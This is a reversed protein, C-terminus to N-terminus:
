KSVDDVEMLFPRYHDSIGNGDGLSVRCIQCIKVSRLSETNANEHEKSDPSLYNEYEAGNENDTVEEGDNEVVEESDDENESSDESDDDNESSDEGEGDSIDSMRFELVRERQLYYEEFSLRSAQHRCSCDHSDPDSHAVVEEPDYGTSRLAEVWEMERHFMRAYMSPTLGDDDIAYVNAGATISAILFERPEHFSRIRQRFGYGRRTSSIRHRRVCGLITHLVTCGDFDPTSIDAGHKLLLIANQVIDVSELNLGYGCHEALLCLSYRKQGDIVEFFEKPSIFQQESLIM